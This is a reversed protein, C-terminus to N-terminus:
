CLESLFARTCDPRNTIVADVDAMQCKKIDRKEEVTWVHVRIGKDKASEMFPYQLNGIYPHLAEVGMGAAYDEPKYIGDIYLLGTKSDPALQKVTMVSYHNFSSYWVRNQMDYQKVLSITKREIEPYFFVGTKLEINLTINRGQLLALVEELTPIVANEYEPHLKNAKKEKLESLTYDKVYGKGDCVRDITEDHIVVVEGDKTLQVDLEIGDAGMEIALQFAELTNEPAYASAGRHAWIEM